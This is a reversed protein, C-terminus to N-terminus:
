AGVTVRLCLGFRLKARLAQFLTGGVTGLRPRLVVVLQSSTLRSAKGVYALRGPKSGFDENQPCTLNSFACVQLDCRAGKEPYRQGPVEHPWSAVIASDRRSM